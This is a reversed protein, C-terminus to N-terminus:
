AQSSGCAVSQECEPKSTFPELEPTRPATGLTIGRMPYDTNNGENGRNNKKQSYNKQQGQGTFNGILKNKGFQKSSQAPNSIQGKLFVESIQRPQTQKVMAKEERRAKFNRARTEKDQNIWYEARIEQSVCDSVLTPLSSGANVQKSIDMRFMKMM